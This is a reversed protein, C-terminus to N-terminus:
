AHALELTNKMVKISLDDGNLQYIDHTDPCMVEITDGHPASLPLDLRNGHRNVWGIQKGPSGVVLAFPKVDKTVVTAAGIFCYEGLEVGCVITANAGVTVGKRVYTLTYQGNRPFESRPNKINTFTMSPGLFVNDECVVGSFVSINNQIKVNSGIRVGNAVFVNQGLTCAEGIIADQMIHSFHWVKSEKGISATEHVIATPHIFYDSHTHMSIAQNNSDLSKQAAQLVRLVSLGENGNTLAETRNQCSQIFHRCEEKLPEKEEVEISQPPTKNPLPLTPTEWTIPQKILQLKKSWENCDDFVLLGESGAIVLKQEKTPHLWNVDIKGKVKGSFELHITCTDEIGDLLYSGGFAQVKKPNEELLNMIISIDHPAFSWLVNEETRFMGHSLRSSQIYYIDGLVKEQLLQKIKVIVPHYNLVHGVMLLQKNQTAIRALEEGQESDLALPKEVFVDKGKELAVKVHEYHYVAPSAIVVASVKSFLEDMDRTMHVNPYLKKYEDLREQNTDCICELCNLEAYNRVLNKGWRGAGLIGIKVM